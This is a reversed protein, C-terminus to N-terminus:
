IFSRGLRTIILRNTIFIMMKARAKRQRALAKVRTLGFARALIVLTEFCAFESLLIGQTKLTHPVPLHDTELRSIEFAGM